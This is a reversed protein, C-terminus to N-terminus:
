AAPDASTGQKDATLRAIAEEAAALRAELSEVKAQLDKRRNTEAAAHARSLELARNMQAVLDDLYHYQLRILLRKTGTIVPGVM